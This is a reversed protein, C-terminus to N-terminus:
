AHSLTPIRMGQKEWRDFAAGKVFFTSNEEKVPMMAWGSPDVPAFGLEVRSVGEGFARIVEDMSVGKPAFVNHLLLNGEELEAVGWVGLSPSYWVSGPMFGTVYFFILGPNNAM